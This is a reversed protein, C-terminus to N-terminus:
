LMTCVARVFAVGAAGGPSTIICKEGIGLFNFNVTWAYEGSIINRFNSVTDATWIEHQRSNFGSYIFVRAHSNREILSAAEELTPLRWRDYGAFRDNNLEHVNNKADEFWMPDQSGSKQWILGTARDEIVEGKDHYDHKIGDFRQQAAYSGGYKVERDSDGYDLCFRRERLMRFADVHSFNKIPQSRLFVRDQQSGDKTSMKRGKIMQIVIDLENLIAASRAPDVDSTFVELAAHFAVEAEKLHTTGGKRRGIYALVAGIDKQIAAWTEPNRQRTHTKLAVRYSALAEELNATGETQQGLSFLARSLNIQAQEAIMEADGSSLVERFRLIAEKLHEVSNQWEGILCLAIGLHNLLIARQVPDREYTCVDLATNYVLVAEDLHRIEREHEALETLTDGLVQHILIWFTLNENPNRGEIDSRLQNIRENLSGVM